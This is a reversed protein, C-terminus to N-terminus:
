FMKLKTKMENKKQNCGVFFLILSFFLFTWFYNQLFFFFKYDICQNETGKSSSNSSVMKLKLNQFFVNLFFSSRQTVNIPINQDIHKNIM